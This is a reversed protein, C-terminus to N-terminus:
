NRMRRIEDTTAINVRDMGGEVEGAGVAIGPRGGGVGVAILM